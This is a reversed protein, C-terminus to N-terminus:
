APRQASITCSTFRNVLDAVVPTPLDAFLEGTVEQGLEALTYRHQVEVKIAAFGAAALLAEYQQITLAGAICGAWSLAARIQTESIPLDALTGDVVIDSVALRGGAKLVRFAEHLTQGKDPSLNIVCNSIIVDATKDPLPIQEIHGYLFEVNQMGHKAANRRALALMEETMDVGYVFGTPGVKNAALFVDIGGGSGLDLVVEGPRLAAIATPNGCGFSLNAAEAPILGLEEQSYLKPECSSANSSGCCDTKGNPTRTTSASSGCCSSAATRVREGYHSRVEDHITENSTLTMM